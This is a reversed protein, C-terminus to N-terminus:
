QQKNGNVMVRVEKLNMIPLGDGDMCGICGGVTAIGNMGALVAMEAVYGLNSAVSDGNRGKKGYRKGICLLGNGTIRRRQDLRITRM